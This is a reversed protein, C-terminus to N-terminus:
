FERKGIEEIELNALIGEREEIKSHYFIAQGIFIVAYFLYAMSMGVSILASSALMLNEPNGFQAVGSIVGAFMLIYGPLICAYVAFGVLFGLVFMFGLTRWFVGKTFNYSASFSKIAGIDEVVIFLPYFSLKIGFFVIICILAAIFLFIIGIIGFGISIGALSIFFGITLSFLIVLVVAAAVLFMQTGILKWFYKKTDQWLMSITIGREKDERYLKTYSFTVGLILTSAVFIALMMPLLGLIGIGAGSIPNLGTQVTASMETIMSMYSQWFFFGAVMALLLAPSAICFLGKFLPKFNQRVFTFTDGFMDSFRRVKYFEIKQNFTEM